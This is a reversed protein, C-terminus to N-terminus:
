GLVSVTTTMAAPPLGGDPVGYQLEYYKKYAGGKAILEDHSGQEIIEGHEIVV